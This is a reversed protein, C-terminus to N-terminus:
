KTSFSRKGIVLLGKLVPHQQCETCRCTWEDARWEETGKKIKRMEGKGGYNRLGM